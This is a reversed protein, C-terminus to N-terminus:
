VLKNSFYFSDKFTPLKFTSDSSLKTSNKRFLSRFSLSNLSNIIQEKFGSGDSSEENDPETVDSKEDVKCMEEDSKEDVKLGDDDSKEDVKFVEEDSGSVDKDPSPSHDDECDM